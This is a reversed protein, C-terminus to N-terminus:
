SGLCNKLFFSIWGGSHVYNSNYSYISPSIHCETIRCYPFEYFYHRYMSLYYSIYLSMEYNSKECSFHYFFQILINIDIKFQHHVYAKLKLKKELGVKEKGHGYLIIAHAEEATCIKTCNICTEKM